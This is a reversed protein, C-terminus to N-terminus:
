EISKDTVELLSCLKTKIRENRKKVFELFEAFSYDLDDLLQGKIFDANQKNKWDIVGTDTKVLNAGPTLLQLNALSNENELYKLVKNTDLKLTDFQETKFLNQPFIHDQNCNDWYRNDCILMLILHSYKSRYHEKGIWRDIDEKTLEFGKIMRDFTKGEDIDSRMKRLTSDSAGGFAGKLTSIIFWRILENKLKVNETEESEVFTNEKRSKMLYYAIPILANKSIINKESFGYKAILNVTMELYKKIDQWRESIKQLNEKNFNILKYQVSLNSLVLSAKLVDDKDFNYNPKNLAERNLEDVFDLIEQRAGKPQFLNKNSEMYSLLLDAKELKVGGENARVFVNLIKEQDATSVSTIILADNYTCFAAHMEGLVNKAKKTLETNGNTKKRIEEDFDEKFDEASKDRYDLVKGVEVWLENKNEPSTEFFEFEYKLGYTNDKDKEIDSFLNIYLKEKKKKKYRSYAFSGKLGVFLTTLRQQGDLILNINSIGNLNAEKNHPDELDYNNIFEYVEFDIKELDKDKNYSWSLMNGIPYRQLISDFLRIMREKDWVFERQISPLFYTKNVNDLVFEAIKM